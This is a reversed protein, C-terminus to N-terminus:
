MIFLMKAQCLNLMDEMCKNKEGPFHKVYVKWNGFQTCIDYGKVHEVVCHSCDIYHLCDGPAVSKPLNKSKGNKSSSSSQKSYTWYDASPPELHRFIGMICM